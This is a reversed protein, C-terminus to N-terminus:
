DDTGADARLEDLVSGTSRSARRTPEHRGVPKTAEKVRGSAMLAATGGIDSPAVLVAVITGRDTVAVREGARVRRLVASAHQQLERVPVTNM